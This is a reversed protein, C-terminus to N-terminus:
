SSSTLLYSKIKSFITACSEFLPRVPVNNDSILNSNNDTLETITINTDDKRHHQYQATAAPVNVEIMDINYQNLIRQRKIFLTEIISINHYRHSM